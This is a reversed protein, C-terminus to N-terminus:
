LLGLSLPHQEISIILCIVRSALLTDKISTMSVMLSLLSFFMIYIHKGDNWCLTIHINLCNRSQLFHMEVSMGQLQDVHRLAQYVRRAIILSLLLPLPLPQSGLSVDQFPIMQTLCAVGVPTMGLICVYRLVKSTNREDQVELIILHCCGTFSHVGGIM